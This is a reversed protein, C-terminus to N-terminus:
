RIAEVERVKVAVGRTAREMEWGSMQARGTGWAKPGRFIIEDGTRIGPDAGTVGPALISGTPTFDDITVHLRPWEGLRKAGQLTLSLFGARNMSAVGRITIEPRTRIHAGNQLLREGAGPGFQYDAASQLLRRIKYPGPPLALGAVALKLSALAETSTPNHGRPCTTQHGISQQKAEEEAIERPTGELHILLHKPRHKELLTHLCERLWRQEELDWHGTVPVNYHAAPYTRELERPVVGLPSTLMIEQLHARHPDLARIFDRHSRSLSYPKRASCPLLIWTDAHPTFRERVRQAFRKVEVRDLSELTSALMTTERAAPTRRELYTGERDLLRLAATQTPEHRCQAELYDRLRGRRILHRVRLAEERLRHTNHEATLRYGEPLARLDGPEHSTCIPCLCPLEELEGTPTEGQPTQYLGRYGAAQPIVTDVLDAGLTALLALNAPTAAAPVYLAGDPPAAERHEVMQHVLERPERPLVGAKPVITIDPPSEAAGSTGVQAQLGTPRAERTRGTFQHDRALPPLWELPPLLGPTELVEIGGEGLKLRGMRGPGDRRLVEFFRTM